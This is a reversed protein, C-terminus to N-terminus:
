SLTKFSNSNYDLKPTILTVYPKYLFHIMIHNHTSTSWQGTIPLNNNHERGPGPLRSCTASMPLPKNTQRKYGRILDPRMNGFDSKDLIFKQYRDGVGM